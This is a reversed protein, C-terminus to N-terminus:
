LDTPLPNKLPFEIITYDANKLESVGELEDISRKGKAAQTLYFGAIAHGVILLNGQLSLERLTQLCRHMRDLLEQRPEMGFEANEEYYWPTQHMKPKNELQAQGREQLEDIIRIHTVDIGLEGAIIEATQQARLYPSCAVVQINFQRIEEATRM